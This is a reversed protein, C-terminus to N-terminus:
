LRRVGTCRKKSATCFYTLLHTAATYYHQASYENEATKNHLMNIALSSLLPQIDAMATVDVKPDPHRTMPQQQDM